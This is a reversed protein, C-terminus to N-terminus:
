NGRASALYGVVLLVVVLLLSVTALMRLRQQRRLAWDTEAAEGQQDHLVALEHPEPQAPVAEIEDTPRDLDVDAFAADVADALLIERAMQLQDSRVYIEVAGLLPYPGDLSGRLQVAVGEAGLRAQVVRAHFGGAATTLHEM